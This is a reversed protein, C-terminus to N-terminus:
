RQALLDYVESRLKPNSDFLGRVVATKTVVGPKRIGRATMCSHEGSIVVMINNTHLIMELIDAIDKGIREQLQLRKTVLDVIRPIKSLGIVRGEPIYAVSIKMNYMLAMHHECYSFADIDKVLVLDRVGPEEFCKDFLQAIEENTYAMGQFVEEYMGVVRKPTDVIGAPWDEKAKGTLASLILEVGKQIDEKQADSMKRTYDKM